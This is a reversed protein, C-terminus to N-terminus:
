QYAFQWYCTNFVLLLLWHCYFTLNPGCEGIGIDFALKETKKSIQNVHKNKDANIHDNVELTNKLQNSNVPM